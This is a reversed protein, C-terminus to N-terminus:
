IGLSPAIQIFTRVLNEDWQTGAGEELIAFAKELSMGKRYPRDSVLAHYTDAIAVIKAALPIDGNTLQEPYGKGDIREHHYKVIPILDRLNPNPHLVKEAGIVPHQKMIAWEEDSLPGEKKLVTEPIGIKGVDHLLAGLTIRAVEKEPLNIARALAESYRSVSTSHGKTYPDKADIAGALSTAIEWTRTDSLNHDNNFKTLLEEEFNIGLQSHRKSVVEAYSKLAIDDWFNFDSSSVIASMGDKYGKAQSIYMAQEALILLKEKDEATDPYTATGVSVKIPGIEDIFCCSLSYTIFEAVYKAQESSTNPIIIAIEDGGYRGAIDGERVNQRVKEAVIKIVEDGKAHGLERNIKTINNIDMMIVSLNQKNIEARSIENTLIEQFGRHNALLTLSDTNTIEDSKELLEMNHTVLALYNAILSYLAINQRAYADEIIFVGICKNVSIMPLIATSYNKYYSLKLYDKKEVFKTQHTKFVEVIPNETDKLFVKTSFNNGLKDQLKLNICNSKEKFLGVAFFSSDINQSILSYIKNYFDNINTVNSFRTLGDIVQKYNLTTSKENNFVMNQPNLLPNSATNLTLANVKSVLTGQSIPSTVPKSIKNSKENNIETKNKKM